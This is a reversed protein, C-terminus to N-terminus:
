MASIKAGEVQQGIVHLQSKLKPLLKMDLIQNVDNEFAVKADDDGQFFDAPLWKTKFFDSIAANLDDAFKDMPVVAETGQFYSKLAQELTNVYQNAQEVPENQTALEQQELEDEFPGEEYEENMRNKLYQKFNM